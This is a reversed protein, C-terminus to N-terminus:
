AASSLPAVHDIILVGDLHDIEHQACKAMTGQLKVRKLAGAVDLYEVEVRAPRIVLTRRGLISLCGEELPTLEESRWIIVPNVMLSKGVSAVRRLVGIQPAALGLGRVAAMTSQLLSALDRLEGDFTEVPTSVQRLIENPHILIEATTM